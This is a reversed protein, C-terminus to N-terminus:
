EFNDFRRRCPRGVLCGLSPMPRRPIGPQDLGRGYFPGDAPDYRSGATLLPCAEREASLSGFFLLNAGPSVRFPPRSCPFPHPHAPGDATAPPGAMVLVASLRTTRCAGFSQGDLAVLGSGVGLFSFFWFFVLKIDRRSYFGGPDTIFLGRSRDNSCGRGQTPLHAVNSRRPALTSAM